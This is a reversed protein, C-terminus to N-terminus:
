LAEPRRYIKGTLAWRSLAKMAERRQLLSRALQFGEEYTAVKDLWYLRLGANFIVHERENRVEPTDEGQIVRRLMDLQEGRSTKPLERSAFGFLKPDIFTAEDGYPTVKRVYSSRDLPLNETGDAGCVIYGFQFGTSPVISVLHDAEKKDRAGIIAFSSQFPNLLKEVTNILTSIGLQERVSRLRLLPECYIDSDLLVINSERLCNEWQHLAQEKDRISETCAANLLSAYEAFGGAAVVHPIGIGALLFSVPLSVPVHAGGAPSGGIYVSAPNAKLPKGHQRFVRVFAAATEPSEGKLREAIFFAAAQVDSTEGVAISQAAEEAEECTIPKDKGKMLLDKLWRIM